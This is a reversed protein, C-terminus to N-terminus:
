RPLPLTPVLATVGNWMIQIGLCLLIFSSLRLFVNTGAAGLLRALREAFSYSLYVSLAIGGTGLLAALVLGFAPLASAPANAGLTVAVSISGPGVTLPLTLPYFAATAIQTASWPASARPEVPEDRRLLNWAASSLLLGGGVQMVGVSIGFFGLIRTGVFLSVLLIVFGNLAVRRALVERTASSTSATLTLFIPAGGLPNVIPFLAAVIVSATRGVELLDGTALV